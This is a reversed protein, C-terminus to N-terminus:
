YEALPRLFIILKPTQFGSANIIPEKATASIISILLLDHTRLDGVYNCFHLIADVRLNTTRGRVGVLKRESKGRSERSRKSTGHSLLLELVQHEPVRLGDGHVLIPQLGTEGFLSLDVGCVEQM